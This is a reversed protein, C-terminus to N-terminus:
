PDSRPAATQQLWAVLTSGIDDLSQYRVLTILTPFDIALQLINNINVGQQKIEAHYFGLIPKETQLFRMTNLGSGFGAEDYCYIAVQAEQRFRADRELMFATLADDEDCGAANAAQYAEWDLDYYEIPDCIMQTLASPAMTPFQQQYYRYRTDYGIGTAELKEIVAVKFQRTMDTAYMGKGSVYCPIAM